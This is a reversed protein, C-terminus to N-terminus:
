CCGGGNGGYWGASSSPSGFCGGVTRFAIREPSGGIYFGGASATQLLALLQQGFPTQNLWWQWQNPNPSGQFTVSIKSITAGIVQGPTEGAAIIINLQALHAVMLEIAFYRCSGQLYGYDCDSIYCTAWDWYIQLRADSFLTPDAFAPFDIRFQAIDFVFKGDIVVIAM